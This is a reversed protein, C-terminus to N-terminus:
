LAQGKSPDTSWILLPLLSLKPIIIWIKGYFFIKHGDNSGDWQSLDCCQSILFIIKSNDLTGGRIQLKSPDMELKCIEPSTKIIKM